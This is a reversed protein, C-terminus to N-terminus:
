DFRFSFWFFFGFALFFIKLDFPGVLHEEPPGIIVAQVVVDEEALLDM